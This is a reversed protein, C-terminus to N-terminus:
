RLGSRPIVEIDIIITTTTIIIVTTAIIHIM